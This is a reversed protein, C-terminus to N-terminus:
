NKKKLTLSAGTVEFVEDPKKPPDPKKEKHTFFLTSLVGIALLSIPDM